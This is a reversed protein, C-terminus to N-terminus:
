NKIISDIEDHKITYTITEDEKDIDIEYAVGQEYIEVVTAIDGNKLKVKDYMKIKM